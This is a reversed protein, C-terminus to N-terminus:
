RSKRPFGFLYLSRRERGRAGLTATALTTVASSALAVAPFVIAVALGTSLERPNQLRLNALRAINRSSYTGHFDRIGLAISSQCAYMAKLGSARLKLITAAAYSSPIGLYLYRWGIRGHVSQERYFCQRVVGKAWSEQVYM